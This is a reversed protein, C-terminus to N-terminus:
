IYLEIQEKELKMANKIHFRFHKPRKNDGIYSRVYQFIFVCWLFFVDKSLVYLWFWTGELRAYSRWGHIATDGYGGDRLISM